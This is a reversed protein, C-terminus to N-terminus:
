DEHARVRWFRVSTCHWCLHCFTRLGSSMLPGHVLSSSWLTLFHCKRMNNYNYFVVPFLCLWTDVITLFFLFCNSQLCGNQLLEEPQQQVNKAETVWCACCMYGRLFQSTNKKVLRWSNWKWGLALTIILLTALTASSVGEKGEALHEENGGYASICLFAASPM